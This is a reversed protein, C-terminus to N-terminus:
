YSPFFSDRKRVTRRSRVRGDSLERVQSVGLQIRAKKRRRGERSKDYFFLDGCTSNKVWELKKGRVRRRGKESRVGKPVSEGGSLMSNREMGTAEFRTSGAGNRGKAVMHTGEVSNEKDKQVRCRDNKYLNMM